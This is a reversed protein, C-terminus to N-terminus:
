GSPQCARASQGGAMLTGSFLYVLEPCTPLMLVVKDDKSLGREILRRAVQRCRTVTEEVGIPRPNNQMDMFFLFHEEKRARLHLMEVLTRARLTYARSNKQHAPTESIM